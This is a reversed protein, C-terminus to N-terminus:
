PEAPPASEAQALWRSFEQQAAEDMLRRAIEGCALGVGFLVATRGLGTLVGGVLDSGTWAADLATAAFALLGLRCAITWAM